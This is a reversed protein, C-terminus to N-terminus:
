EKGQITASVGQSLSVNNIRNVHASGESTGVEVVVCGDRDTLGVAAALHTVFIVQVDLEKALSQIFMLAIKSRSSDLAKLCEDLFIIRSPKTPELIIYLIRQLVSIFDRLGGGEGAMLSVKKGDPLYVYFEANYSNGSTSFEISVRYNKNFVERVGSTILEEFKTIIDTRIGNSFNQTVTVSNALDEVLKKYSDCESTETAILSKLSMLNAKRTALGLKADDLLKTLTELNM